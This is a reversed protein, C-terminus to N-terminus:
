RYYKEYSKDTRNLEGSKEIEDLRRNIVNERDFSTDIFPYAYKEADKQVKKSTEIHGKILDLLKEDSLNRTWDFETDCKRIQSLKEEPSINPYGMYIITAEQKDIIKEADEPSLTELDIVNHKTYKFLNKSYSALFKKFEKSELNGHRIGLEPSVENITEIVADMIIHTYGLKEQLMSATQTKGCRSPGILFINKLKKEQVM